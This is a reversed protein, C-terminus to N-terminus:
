HECAAALVLDALKGDTFYCDGEGNQSAFPEGRPILRSETVRGTMELTAVVNVRETDVDPSIRHTIRGTASDHVAV